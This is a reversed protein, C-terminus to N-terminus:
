RAHKAAIAALGREIEAASVWRGRVMVGARRTLNSVSALPNADLLVLDARNGVAVTGFDGPLKLDRRAYEAVNRTGSELVKYTPVGAAAMLAVERHLAFGPVNFMQPSDTGMLLPAGSDSLAKLVRRRLALFARADEPTVGNQQDQAMRNRKQSVWGNVMVPSAYRMEPLTALSEPATPNFFNEWLYVTPVNWVGQRKTESVLRALRRDDAARVLEGMTLQQASARNALGIQGARVRAQVSDAAMGELYGDLHDVTSQRGALARELGVEASVHGAYTIGVEQGTRVIADWAPVTLGPHLKLLDYGAAKHARILREATAADPASTGNLSPAGVYLTPGLVEGRALQARLELQSPAGLMGRITTVGNAVYLFMLDRITEPSTGGGPVHAHMEALGPMLYRGAGTVRRAGRPVPTSRSPGMAVIRDGRVIVTHAPLTRERDMPVVTVDVFAVVSDAAAPQAFAPRAALAGLTALTAALVAAHPRRTPPHISM